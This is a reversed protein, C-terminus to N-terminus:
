SPERLIARAVEYLRERSSLGLIGAAEHVGADYDLWEALALAVPPHMLAVFDLCERSPLEGFPPALVVPVCDPGAAVFGLPLLEAMELPCDDLWPGVASWEDVQAAEAHERLVRAARRLLEASM